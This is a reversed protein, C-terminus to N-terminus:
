KVTLVKSSEQAKESEKHSDSFLSLYAKDGNKLVFNDTDNKSTFRDSYVTVSSDKKLVNTQLLEMLQNYFATKMAIPLGGLFSFFDEDHYADSDELNITIWINFSEDDLPFDYNKPSRLWVNLFYDKETSKSKLKVVIYKTDKEDNKEKFYMEWIYPVYVFFEGLEIGLYVCLKDVTDFQVGKGTNEALAMLTTKSIGTDEYVDAIKLGREAMLVAFNTKIM